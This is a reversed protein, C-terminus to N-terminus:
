AITLLTSTSREPEVGHLFRADIMLPGGALRDLSVAQDLACLLLHAGHVLMRGGHLRRAAVPDTHIPNHDGSLDAFAAREADSISWYVTM